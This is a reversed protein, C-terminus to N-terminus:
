TQQNTRIINIDHSKGYHIKKKSQIKNDSIRYNNNHKKHYLIFVNHTIIQAIWILFPVNRM